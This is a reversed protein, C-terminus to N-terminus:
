AVDNVGGRMAFFGLSKRMITQLYNSLGACKSRFPADRAPGLPELLRMGLPGHPDQPLFTDFDPICRRKYIRASLRHSRGEGISILFSPVVLHHHFPERYESELDRDRSFLAARVVGAASLTARREVQFM